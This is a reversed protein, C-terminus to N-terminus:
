FLGLPYKYKISYYPYVELNKDYDVPQGWGTPLSGFREIWKDYIYSYKNRLENYFQPTIVFESQGIPQCPTPCYYKELDWQLHHGIDPYYLNPWLEDIPTGLYESLKQKTKGNDGWLEEMVALFMNPYLEIALDYSEMCDYILNDWIPITPDFSESHQPYNLSDIIDKYKWLNDTSISNYIKLCRSIAQRVPDRALFIPKVEFHKNLLPFLGPRLQLTDKVHLLSSVAKYGKSSVHHYLALYYELYTQDNVEYDIIYKKFHKLPFDKIPELDDTYNLLHGHNYQYNEWQNNIILEPAEPTYKINGKTYGFHSYKLTRQLTYCLPSSADWGKTLIPIFLPKTDM